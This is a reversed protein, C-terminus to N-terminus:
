KMELLPITKGTSYMEEVNPLITEAVTKGNPLVIYPLFEEEFHGINSDVAELKAKILLALARWRQKIAQEYAANASSKSRERGTETTEFAEHSPIPVVFRINRNIFKFGVIVYDKKRMYGFEDAGYRILIKEIEDRSKDVSVSTTNAYRGM